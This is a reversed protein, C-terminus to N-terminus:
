KSSVDDDDKADEGNNKSNNDNNRGSSSEDENSDQGGRLKIASNRLDIESMFEAVAREEAEEDLPREEYSKTDEDM